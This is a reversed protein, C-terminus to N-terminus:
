FSVAQSGTSSQNNKGDAATISFDASVEAPGLTVTYCYKGPDAEQEEMPYTATRSYVGKNKYFDVEMSVSAVGDADAIMACVTGGENSVVVITPGPMGDDLTTSTTATTSSTSVVTTSTGAGTTATTSPTTTAVSSTSSAVTSSTSTTTASTSPTSNPPMNRPVVDVSYTQITGESSAITMNMSVKKIKTTDAVPASLATGGSDSYTITFSRIGEAMTIGNRLLEENAADFEYSIVENTDAVDGNGNIDMAYQIKNVEAIAIGPGAAGTPNLGAELLERTMLEMSARANGQIEVTASERKYGRNYLVFTTVMITLVISGLAMVILLEILSFGKEKGELRM